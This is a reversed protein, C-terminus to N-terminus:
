FVMKLVRKKKMKTVRDTKKFFKSYTQLDDRDSLEDTYRGYSILEDELRGGDESLRGLEVKSLGKSELCNDSSHLLCSVISKDFILSRERVVLEGAVAISKVIGRDVM